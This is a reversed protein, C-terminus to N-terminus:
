NKDLLLKFFRYLVSKTARLNINTLRFTVVNQNGIAESFIVWHRIFFEEDAAIEERLASPLLARKKSLRDAMRRRLLIDVPAEVLLLVVQEIKGSEAIRKLRSFDIQPIYGSPLRLAYHWHVVAVIDTPMEELKNTILEEIEEITKIKKDYFYRRFLEGPDLLKIQGVFKNELWSLLTTKGVGQVGGFLVLKLHLRKIPFTRPKLM